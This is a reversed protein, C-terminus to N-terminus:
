SSGPKDGDRNNCQCGGHRQGGQEGRCGDSVPVGGLMREGKGQGGQEGRCEAMLAQSVEWRGSVIDKAEKDAGATM